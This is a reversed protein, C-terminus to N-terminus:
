FYNKISTRKRLSLIVAAVMLMENAVAIPNEYNRCLRRFDDLLAITREIVWRKKTHVFRGSYNSHSIEVDMGFDKKVEEIFKGQCGRDAYIRRIWPYATVLMAVLAYASMSEHINTLTTAGEQIDGDRDALIKNKLYIVKRNENGGKQSRPLVSFLSESDIAGITPMGSKGISLSLQRVLIDEFETFVEMADWRRLCYYVTQRKLYEGPLMRWQCGYVDIYIIADCIPFSDYKSRRNEMLATGRIYSKQAYTLDTLYM